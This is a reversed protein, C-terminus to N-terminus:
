LLYCNRLIEVQYLVMFYKHLAFGSVINESATADEADIHQTWTVAPALVTM